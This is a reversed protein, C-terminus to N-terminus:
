HFGLEGFSVGHRVKVVWCVLIRSAKKWLMNRERM